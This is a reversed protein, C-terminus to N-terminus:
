EALYGNELLTVFAETIEDPSVRGNPDYWQYLWNVMGLAGGVVARVEIDRFVGQAVGERYVREFIREYERMQGRLLRRERDSLEAQERFFITTFSRYRLVSRAHARILRSFKERPPLDAEAIEQATHLYIGIIHQFIMWLIEHKSKVYYYLAPKTVGFENAIDVLTSARYGKTAFLDAATAVLDQISIGRGNASRQM